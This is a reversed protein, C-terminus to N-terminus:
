KTFKTLLSYTTIKGKSYNETKVPGVGQSLWQTTQSESKNSMGAFNSNVRTRYSVKYCMYTGAPVKVEEKAQVIRDYIDITITAMVMDGSKITMVMTSSKLSDGIKINKPTEMNDGSFEITVDKMDKFSKMQEMDGLINKMDMKIVNNICEVDFTSNSTEKGKADESKTSINAKFGNANKSISNVTSNSKGQFKDASNYNSLEWSTGAKFPYFGDDCNQSFANIALLSAFLISLFKM